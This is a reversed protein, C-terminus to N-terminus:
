VATRSIWRARRSWASNCDHALHRRLLWQGVDFAPLQPFQHM